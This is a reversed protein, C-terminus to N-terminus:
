EDDGTWAGYGILESELYAVQFELKAIKERLEPVEDIRKKAEVVMDM